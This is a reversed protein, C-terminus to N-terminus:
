AALPAKAFISALPLLGLQAAEISIALARNRTMLKFLV